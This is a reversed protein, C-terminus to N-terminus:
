RLLLLPPYHHRLRSCNCQEMFRKQGYNYCSTHRRTHWQRPRDAPGTSLFNRHLTRRQLLISRCIASLLLLLLVFLFLRFTRARESVQGRTPRREARLIEGGSFSLFFAGFLFDHCCHLLLRLRLPGSPAMKAKGKRGISPTWLPAAGRRLYVRM